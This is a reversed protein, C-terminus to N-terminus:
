RGHRLRRELALVGDDLDLATGASSLKLGLQAMAFAVGPQVGVVITEAGRLKLVKAIGDLVRTAYSDMVEMGGVDIVVGRSRLEGARRVLEDRFRAWGSDTLEDEVAAVLYTGFKLIPVREVSM